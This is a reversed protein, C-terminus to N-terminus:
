FFLAGPEPLVCPFVWIHDGEPIINWGPGEGEYVQYENAQAYCSEQELESQTRLYLAKQTHETNYGITGYGNKCRSWPVEYISREGKHCRNEEM